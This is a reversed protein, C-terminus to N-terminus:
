VLDSLDISGYSSPKRVKGTADKGVGFFEGNIALAEVSAVEEPWTIACNLDWSEKPLKGTTGDWNDLKVFKELNNDCVRDFAEELRLGFAHMNWYMTYAVDALGDLMEIKDPLNNSDNYDVAEASKLEVGEFVPNLGLGRIVYEFTESLLLHAALKRFELSTSSVDLGKEQGALAMFKAVKDGDM